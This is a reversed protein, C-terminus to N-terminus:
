RGIARNPTTLSRRVVSIIAGSPVGAGGGWVMLGLLVPSRSGADGSAGHRAVLRDYRRLCNPAHITEGLDAKWIPRLPRDDCGASQDTRKKRQQNSKGDRERETTEANGGRRWRQRKYRGARD